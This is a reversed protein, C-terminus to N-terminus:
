IVILYQITQLQNIHSDGTKSTSFMHLVDM